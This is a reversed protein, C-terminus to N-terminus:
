RGRWAQIIDALSVFAIILLVALGVAHRDVFEFLTM